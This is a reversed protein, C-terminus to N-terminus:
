GRRLQSCRAARRQERAGVVDVQRPRLPGPALVEGLVDLLLEDVVVSGALHEAAPELHVRRDVEAELLERRSAISLHSVRLRVARLRREDRDVGPVPLHERHDAAVLKEFLWNLRATWPSRWGPDDNM